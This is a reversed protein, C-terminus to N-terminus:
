VTHPGDQYVRLFSTNRSVPTGKLYVEISYKNPVSVQQVGNITYTSPTIINITNGILRQKYIWDGNDSRDFRVWVDYESATDILVTGNKIQVQDWISTIINGTKNFDINGSIYTYGSQLNLIPSWHSTRNKDESIIRYRVDYGEQNVNIDPLDKKLIRAKKIRSDSM